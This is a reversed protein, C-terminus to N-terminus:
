TKGVLECFDQCARSKHRNYLAGRGHKASHGSRRRIRHDRCKGACSRTDTSHFTPPFEPKGRCLNRRGNQTLPDNVGDMIASYVIKAYGLKTQKGEMLDYGDLLAENKLRQLKRNSPPLGLAKFMDRTRDIGHYKEIARFLLHIANQAGHANLTAPVGHDVSARSIEQIVVM